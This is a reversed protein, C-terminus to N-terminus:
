QAFRSDEDSFEDNKWFHPLNSGMLVLDGSKFRQISDAVFSIGTGEEVFLLEFESHFHWPYSFGPEERKKAKIASLGPFDIHEHMMKM